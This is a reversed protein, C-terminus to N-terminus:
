TQGDFEDFFDVILRGVREVILDVDDDNINYAPALILYDGNGNM